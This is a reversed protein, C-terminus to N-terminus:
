FFIISKKENIDISLRIIYIDMTGFFLNLVVDLMRVHVLVDTEENEVNQRRMRWM